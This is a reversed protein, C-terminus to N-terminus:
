STLKFAPFVINPFRKIVEVFDTARNSNIIFAPLISKSDFPIVDPNSASASATSILDAKKEVEAALNTLHNAKLIDVIGQKPIEGKQEPDFLRFAFKAKKRQHVPMVSSLAMVLLRTDVKDDLSDGYVTFVNKSVRSNLPASMLQCFEEYSVFQDPLRMVKQFFIDELQNLDLALSSVFEFVEGQKKIRLKMKDISSVKPAESRSSEVEFENEDVDLGMIDRRVTFMFEQLSLQGDGDSDIIKMMQDIEQDTVRKQCSDLVVRLETASVFGNGDVDLTQFAARIEQDSFQPRRALEKHTPM